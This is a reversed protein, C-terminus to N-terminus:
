IRLRHHNHLPQRKGQPSLWPHPHQTQPASTGSTRRAHSGAHQHSSHPTSGDCCRNGTQWQAASLQLVQGQGTVATITFLKQDYPLKQLTKWDREKEVAVDFRGSGTIVPLWNNDLKETNISLSVGCSNRIINQLDNPLQTVALTARGVHTLQAWGHLHASDDDEGVALRISCYFNGIFFTKLRLLESLLPTMAEFRVDMLTGLKGQRPLLEDVIPLSLRTINSGVDLTTFNITDWNYVICRVNLDPDVVSFKGGAYLKPDKMMREKIDIADYDPNGPHIEWWELGQHPGTARIHPPLVSFPSLAVAPRRQLPLKFAEMLSATTMQWNTSYCSLTEPTYASDMATREHLITRRARDNVMEVMLHYLSALQRLPLEHQQVVAAIPIRADAMAQKDKTLDRELLKEADSGDSQLKLQTNMHIGPIHAKTLENLKVTLQGFHKIAKYIQQGVEYSTDLPAKLTQLHARYSNEAKQMERLLAKDQTAALALANRRADSDEICAALRYIRERDDAGQPTDPPTFNLDCAAVEEFFRTVQPQISNTSELFQNFPNEAVIGKQVYQQGLTIIAGRTTMSIMSMTTFPPDPSAGASAAAAAPLIEEQQQVM